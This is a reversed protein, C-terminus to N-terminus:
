LNRICYFKLSEKKFDYSIQKCSISITHGSNANSSVKNELRNVLMNSGDIIRIRLIHKYWLYGCSNVKM